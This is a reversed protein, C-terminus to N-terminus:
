LSWEAFVCTALTQVAHFRINENSSMSLEFLDNKLGLKEITYHADPFVKLFRHIDNAALCIAKNNTGKLYKKMAKLIEIKNEQLTSVNLEWFKDDYHYPSDELKGTFVEKLYNQISSTNKVFTRLESFVWDINELFEKDKSKRVTIKETLHMLQYANSLSIFTRPIINRLIAYSVRLVKEKYRDEIITKLVPVTEDLIADERFSLIWYILLCNYQTERLKMYVLIQDRLVSDDLIRDRVSEDGIGIKQLLLRKLNSYVYNIEEYSEYDPVTKFFAWYDDSVPNNK